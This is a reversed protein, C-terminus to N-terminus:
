KDSSSFWGTIGRSYYPGEKYIQYARQPTVEANFFKVNNIYGDFGGEPTFHVDHKNPQPFGKLICNSVLKGDMYISVNNQYVSVIINVWKQLPVNRVYCTDYLNELKYKLDKQSALEDAPVSVNLGMSTAFIKAMTIMFQQSIEEKETETKNVFKNAYENAVERRGAETATSSFKKIFKSIFPNKELFEPHLPNRGPPEMVIDDDNNNINTNFLEKMQHPFDKVQNNGGVLGYNHSMNDNMMKPDVICNYFPEVTNNVKNNSINSIDGNNFSEPTTNNNIENSENNEGISDPISIQKLEMGPNDVTDSQLKIRVILSSEQPHLYIEPNAEINDNKVVGKYMVHKPQGYKYSYDNIYLWMSTSYENGQIPKPVQSDPVIKQKMANHKTEIVTSNEDYYVKTKKYWKYLFYLGIIVAIGVIFYLFISLYNM